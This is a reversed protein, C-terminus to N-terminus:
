LIKQTNPMIVFILNCIILGDKLKNIGQVLVLSHKTM